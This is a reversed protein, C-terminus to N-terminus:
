MPRTPKRWWGGSFVAPAWDGNAPNGGGEACIYGQDPAPNSLFLGAAAALLLSWRNRHPRCCSSM